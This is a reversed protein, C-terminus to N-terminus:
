NSELQDLKTQYCDRIKENPAHAVAEKYASIADFKNGQANYLDGLQKLLGAKAQPSQVNDIAEIFEIEAKKYNQEISAITGLFGHSLAIHEEIRYNDDKTRDVITQFQETAKEINNEIDGISLSYYVLYLRGRAFAVKVDIDATVPQDSADQANNFNYEASALESEVRALDLDIDNWCSPIGLLARQFYVEGLGIYGRAYENNVSLANEYAAEADDLDGRRGYANGLMLYVSEQGSENDWSVTGIAQSFLEIAEGYLQNQFEASAIDARWHAFLGSAVLAIGEIRSSLVNASDDNSSVNLSISQGLPHSGILEPIAQFGDESLYTEIDLSYGNDTEIVAGYIVIDADIQTALMEAYIARENSTTGTIIGTIEPSQVEYYLDTGQNTALNLKREILTHIQNAVQLSKNQVEQDEINQMDFEAVAINFQGNMIQPSPTPLPTQSDVKIEVVADSLVVEVEKIRTDNINWVSIRGSSEKLDSSLSKFEAEGNANIPQKLTTDVVLWVEGERLPGEPTVIRVTVDFSNEGSILLFGGIVVLMAVIIPGIIEFIGFGVKHSFGAYSRMGGFVFAATSLGLPILLFYFVQQNMGQSILRPGLFIMLLLLGISILLGLSSIVVYALPSLPQIYTVNNTLSETKLNNPLQFGWNEKPRNEKLQAILEPFLDRQEVYQLLSIIKTRKEDGALHDFDIGMQFCLERIDAMSFHNDIQSRLKQLQHSSPQKQTM